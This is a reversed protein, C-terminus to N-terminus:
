SDKEALRVLNGLAAALARSLPRRVLPRLLWGLRGGIEAGHTIRVTTSSVPEVDHTFRVRVGPMRVTNAYSRERTVEDLVFSLPPLGKLKFQGRTGADFPGHLRSWAVDTDWAPSGAVDSWLRWVAAASASTSASVRIM